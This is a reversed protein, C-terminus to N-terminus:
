PFGIKRVWAAFRPDAHLPALLSDTKLEKLETDGLEWARDLATFAPDTAGRQAHVQAIQYQSDGGHLRVLDAFARDSAARDGLRAAAVAEITLRVWNDAPLATVSGRAEASRGATLLAIALEYKAYQSLPIRVVNKQLMPIAEEARGARLLIKGLVDNQGPWLPDLALARHFAALAEQHHGTISQFQAYSALVAVDGPAVRYADALTNAAGHLDQRDFQISGLIALPIGLGPALAIAGRAEAEAEALKARLAAGGLNGAAIGAITRARKAHALAYDPDAAVATDFEKLGSELQAKNILAQGRLYADRAAANTTGGLTLLAKEARGLAINLANAVNEAIGTEIALADGAARDYSQSWRSLGSSGDILEASVRITGPGRRVSGTIINAVGLKAAATPADFARVLESSTRAAVKLRAIRSLAGRLEEAIGDSFYAQAPDGSLNAFPLVAVSDQSPGPSRRLAWWSGAGAAAALGAAGGIVLRRRIRDRTILESIARPARDAKGSIIEGAAALVATYRPDSRNGRWGILPLAQTEGFGLPPEVADIQIPLYVGRRLARNAEDRVFSGEPGTSRASWVVLVCQAANLENEITDRWASGGGLHADWWLAVGDAELAAM